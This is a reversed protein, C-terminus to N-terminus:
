QRQQFDRQAAVPSREALGQVLVAQGEERQLVPRRLQLAHDVQAIDEAQTRRDMRQGPYEVRQARADAQQNKLGELAAGAGRQAEIRRALTAVTPHQFM